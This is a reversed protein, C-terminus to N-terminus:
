GTKDAKFRSTMRDLYDSFSPLSQTKKNQHIKALIENDEIKTLLSIRDNTVGLVLLTDAVEVVCINKKVGIYKNAVINVLKQRSGSLEIKSVRRSLYFVIFLGGLVIGLAAFMKLATAIMDPTASM